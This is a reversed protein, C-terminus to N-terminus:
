IGRRMFVADFTENKILFYDKYVGVTEFGFKKYLSIAGFNDARAYLSVSHVGSKKCFDLMMEMLRSGIGRGWYEKLVTLSIEARHSFRKIKEREVIANAVIIGDLEAVLMLDKESRAFRDIFKAEKEPSINFDDKGFSLNDTEGGDTHLHELLAKADAALAERYNIKMNEMEQNYISKKEFEMKKM